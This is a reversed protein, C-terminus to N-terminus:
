NGKGPSEVQKAILRPFHVDVYRITRHHSTTMQRHDNYRIGNSYGVIVYVISM